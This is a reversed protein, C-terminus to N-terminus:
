WDGQKYKDYTKKARNERFLNKEYKSIWKRLPYSHMVEGVERWDFYWLLTLIEIFCLNFIYIGRTKFVEKKKKQGKRERKREIKGWKEEKKKQEENKNCNVGIM